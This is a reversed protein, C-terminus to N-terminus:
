LFEKIIRQILKTLNHNKEVEQRLTQTIKEKEEEPLTLLNVIKQSLEKANKPPFILEPPLIEKFAENCTLVLKQCAMAELVAKDLSGTQSLNIFLDCKQYYPLIQSHPIPGLFQIYKELKKDQTLKKLYLFYKKDRCLAPGGVLLLKIKDFWRYHVLIDIAEILTEYNKIPSIRGISLLIFGSESKESKPLPQFKDLDIGHGVIEIKRRFPLRCSLSSATFIKNALFYTLYLKWTVQKHTYWSIIKKRYLKAWPAVLLTYEPNQHCFIGKVSPVLRFALKQFNWLMKLRGAGKEKGLSYVEAELGSTNGKELCIIKLQSNRKKLEFSLKQAWDYSFGALADDKDIKRTIM